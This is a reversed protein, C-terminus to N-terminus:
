RGLGYFNLGFQRHISNKRGETEATGCLMGWGWQRWYGFHLAQQEEASTIGISFNTGDKRNGSGRNNKPSPNLSKTKSKEVDKLFHHRSVLKDLCFDEFYM